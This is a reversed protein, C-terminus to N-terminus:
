PEGLPVLAADGHRDLYEQYLGPCVSQVACERCRSGFTRGQELVSPLPKGDELLVAANEHYLDMSAALHAPLLCFPLDRFTVTGAEGLAAAFDAVERAADPLPLLLTELNEAAASVPKLAALFFSPSVPFRAATERAWRGFAHGRGKLFRTVVSYFYTEVGSRALHDIARALIQPNDDRRALHKQIQPDFDDFSLGVLDVGLGLLRRLFDPYSLMLGNTTLVVRRVGLARLRRLASELPPWITPEGGILVCTTFGLRVADAAVAVATEEATRYRRVRPVACYLCCQNCVNGVDLYFAPALRAALAQVAADPTVGAPPSRLLRVDVAAPRRKEHVNGDQLEGGSSM